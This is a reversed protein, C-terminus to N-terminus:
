VRWNFRSLSRGIRWGTRKTRASPGPSTADSRPERTSWPTGALPGRTSWCFCSKPRVPKSSSAPRRTQKPLGSRTGRAGRPVRPFIHAYSETKLSRAPLCLRGTQPFSPYNTGSAGDVLKERKKPRRTKAPLADELASPELWAASHLHRIGSGFYARRPALPVRGTVCWVRGQGGGFPSGAPAPSKGGVKRSKRRRRARLPASGGTSSGDDM